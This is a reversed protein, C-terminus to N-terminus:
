LFRWILIVLAILNIIVTIVAFRQSNSLDTAISTEVLLAPDLSDEITPEVIPIPTPLPSPIAVPTEEVETIEEEPSPIQPEHESTELSSLSMQPSHHETIEPLDDIEPEIIETIDPFKSSVRPEPVPLVKQLTPSKPRPPASRVPTTPPTWDKIAQGLEVTSSNPYDETLQVLARHLYSLNQFREGAADHIMKAVIPHAEKNTVRVREVWHTVDGRKAAYEPNPRGTYLSEKLLLTIFIAGLSWQDSRWDLFSQNSQEPSSFSAINQQQHSRFGIIRCQGDVGFIIHDWNIRGHVFPTDLRQLCILGEVLQLMMRYITPASIPFQSQHHLILLERLSVGHIWQRAFAYEREYFHLVRPFVPHRLQSLLQYDDQLALTNEIQRHTKHLVIIAADSLNRTGEPNPAFFLGRDDSVHIRKQLKFHGIQPLPRAM